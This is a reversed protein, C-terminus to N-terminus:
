ASHHLLDPLVRASGGIHAAEFALQRDTAFACFLVNQRTRPSRHTDGATIMPGSQPTEAVLMVRAISMRTILSGSRNSRNVLWAAPTDTPQVGQGAEDSL